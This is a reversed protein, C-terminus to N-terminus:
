MVAHTFAGAPSVVGPTRWEIDLGRLRGQGGGIKSCLVSVSYRMRVGTGRSMRFAKLVGRRLEAEAHFM